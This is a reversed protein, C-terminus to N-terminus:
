RRRASIFAAPTILGPSETMPGLRLPLHELEVLIAFLVTVARSLSQSAVNAGGVDRCRLADIDARRSGPHLISVAAKIEFLEIVAASKSFVRTMQGDGIKWAASWLPEVLNLHISEVKQNCERVSRPARDFFRPQWLEGDAGRRQNVASISFLRPDRLAPRDASCPKVSKM